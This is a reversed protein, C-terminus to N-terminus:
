KSCIVNEYINSEPIPLNNYENKIKQYQVFIRQFILLTRVKHFYVTIQLIFTQEEVIM